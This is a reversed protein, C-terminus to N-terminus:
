RRTTYVAEKSVSFKSHFVNLSFSFYDYLVRNCVIAASAVSMPSKREIFPGTRAGNDEVKILFAYRGFLSQFSAYLHSSRLSGVSSDLPDSDVNRSGLM